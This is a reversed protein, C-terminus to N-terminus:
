KQRHLLEFLTIKNKIHAKLKARQGPTLGDYFDGVQQVLRPIHSRLIDIKQNALQRVRDRDLTPQALLALLEKQSQLHNQQMTKKLRLLEGAVRNLTVVQANNLGLEDTIIKTVMAIRYREYKPNIHIGGAVLGTTLLAAFVLIFLRNKPYRM